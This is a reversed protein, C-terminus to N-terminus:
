ALPRDGIRVTGDVGFRITKKEGTVAVPRGGLDLRLGKDLIRFSQEGVTVTAVGDQYKSTFSADDVSAGRTSIGRGGVQL